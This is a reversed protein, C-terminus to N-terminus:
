KSIMGTARRTDRHSLATNRGARIRPREQNTGQFKGSAAGDLDSELLSCNGIRESEELLPVIERELDRGRGLIRRFRTSTPLTEQVSPSHRPSQRDEVAKWNPARGIYRVKGRQV